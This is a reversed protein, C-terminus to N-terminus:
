GLAVAAVLLWPGSRKGRPRILAMHCDKALTPQSAIADRSQTRGNATCRRIPAISGSSLTAPLSLPGDCSQNQGRGIRLPTRRDAPAVARDEFDLAADGIRAPSGTFGRYRATGPRPAFRHPCALTTRTAECGSSPLPALAPPSSQMLAVQGDEDHAQQQAQFVGGLCVVECGDRRERGTLHRETPGQPLAHGPTDAVRQHQHQEAAQHQALRDRRAEILCELRRHADHEDQETSVHQPAQNAAWKSSNPYPHLGGACPRRAPRTDARGRM